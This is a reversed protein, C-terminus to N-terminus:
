PDYPGHGRNLKLIGYIQKELSTLFLTVEHAMFTLFQFMQGHIITLNITRPLSFHKSQTGSPSDLNIHTPTVVM